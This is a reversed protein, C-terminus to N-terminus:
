FIRPQISRTGSLGGGPGQGREGVMGGTFGGPGPKGPKEALGDAGNLLIPVGIYADKAVTILLSASGSVDVKLKGSFDLRDFKFECIKMPHSNGFDDVFTTESVEGVRSDGNTHNWTGLTTNILLVGNDYKVNEEAIFTETRPSWYSGGENTAFARYYYTEGPALGSVSEEFRGDDHIWFEVEGWQHGWGRHKPLMQIAKTEVGNLDIEYFGGRERISIIEDFTQYPEFNMEDDAVFIELENLEDPRAFPQYYIRVTQVPRKRDLLFTLKPDQGYWATWSSRWGDNPLKGDLLRSAPFTKGLDNPEPEALVVVEGQRLKRLGLKVGEISFQNQWLEPNKGGDNGGWYVTVSASSDTKVPELYRYPHTLILDDKMNWKHALYGEVLKVQSSTLETNYILVEGVLGNWYTGTGLDRSFNSAKVIGDTVLSIIVPTGQAYDDTGGNRPNGNERFTGNILFLSTTLNDIDWITQAGPYFSPRADHGLLFGRNGEERQTVLFVSRVDDITDEFNLFDSDNFDLFSLQDVQQFKPMSALSEQFAHNENGSLDVLQIREGMVVTQNLFVSLIESNTNVSFMSQPDLGPIMQQLLDIDSQHAIM